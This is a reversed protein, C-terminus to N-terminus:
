VHEQKKFPSLESISCPSLKQNLLLQLSYNLFRLAKQSFYQCVLDSFFFTKNFLKLRSEIDSCYPCCFIWAFFIYQLRLPIKTTDAKFSVKYYPNPTGLAHHVTARVPWIHLDKECQWIGFPLLQFDFQLMMKFAKIVGLSRKSNLM